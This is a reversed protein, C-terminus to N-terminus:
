LYEAGMTAAVGFLLDPVTATKMIMPLDVVMVVGAVAEMCLDATVAVGTRPAMDGTWVVEEMIEWPNMVAERNWKQAPTVARDTDVPAMVERLVMDERLVQDTPVTIRAVVSIVQQAMGAPVIGAVAGEESVARAAAVAVETTGLAIIVLIDTVQDAPKHVKTAERITTEKKLVTAQGPDMVAVWIVVTIEEPLVM